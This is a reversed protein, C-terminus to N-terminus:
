GCSTRPSRSPPGAGSRGLTRSRSCTPSTPRRDRDPRHVRGGRRPPEARDAGGRLQGRDGPQPDGVGQRGPLAHTRRPRPLVPHPVVRRRRRLPRAATRRGPHAGLHVPLPHRLLVARHPLRLVARHGWAPRQGPLHQRGPHQGPGERAAARSSPPGGRPPRPHRAPGPLVAPLRPLAGRERQVHERQAAGGRGGPGRRHDAPRLPRRQQVLHRRGPRARRSVQVSGPRM